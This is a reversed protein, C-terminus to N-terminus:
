SVSKPIELALPAPFVLIPKKFALWISAKLFGIVSNLAKLAQPTSLEPDALILL